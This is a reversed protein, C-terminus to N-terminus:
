PAVGGKRHCSLCVADPASQHGTPFRKLGAPGHCTTCGPLKTLPHTVVPPTDATGSHPDHCQLCLAGTYHSDLVVQPFSASRGSAAAHCTACVASTETDLAQVVGAIPGPHKVTPVHCTECILDAHSATAVTTAQRGHCERCDNVAYIEERDAWALASAGTRPPGYQGYLTTTAFAGVALLLSVAVLALGIRGARLVPRVLRGRTSLNRLRRLLSV